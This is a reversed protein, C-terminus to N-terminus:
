QTNGYFKLFPRQLYKSVERRESRPIVTGFEKQMATSVASLGISGPVYAKKDSKERKYQRRSKLIAYDHAAGAQLAAKLSYKETNNKM